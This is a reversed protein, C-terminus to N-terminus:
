LEGANLLMGQTSTDFLLIRNLDVSLSVKDGRHIVSRLDLRAKADEGGFKFMVEKDFGLNEVLDVAINEFEFSSEGLSTRDPRQTGTRTAPFQHPGM